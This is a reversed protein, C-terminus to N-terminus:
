KKDQGQLDQLTSVFAALQASAKAYDMRTPAVIGILGKHGQDFTYTTFVFSAESLAPDANEPGISINIQGPLAGQMVERMGRPDALHDLVLGAKRVDQYERNSLLKSAGELYFELSENDRSSEEVFELVQRSLAAFASHAGFSQEVVNQLRDLRGEAIAMNIFGSLASVSEAPMPSRLRLVKNRVTNQCILVLAYQAGDADMPILEIRRVSEGMSGATMALATHNTLRSVIRSATVLINDMEHMRQEMEERLRQLEQAAMRYQDMLQDVYLRYAQSSPVRGSSVHQKELLGMEELESMENRITASSIPKEFTGLLAKSGVPEASDIYNEIIAKLILLKRDPLMAPVGKKRMLM